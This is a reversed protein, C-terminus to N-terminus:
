SFFPKLVDFMSSANVDIIDFSFNSTPIYQPPVSCHELISKITKELSHAATTSFHLEVYWREWELHETYAGMFGYKITRACLSLYIRMKKQHEINKTIERLQLDVQQQITDDDIITYILDDFVPSQLEKPRIPIGITRQLLITHLIAHLTHYAQDHRIEIPDLKLTYVNMSFLLTIEKLYYFPRM